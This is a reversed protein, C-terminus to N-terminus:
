SKQLRELERGMRSEVAETMVLQFMALLADSALPRLRELADRVAPLDHDPQGQDEFPKWIQKVFLDVFSKAVATAHKHIEEAVKLATEAPIGLEALEASARGLTPSLEEYRGNPLARLIGLREAKKILQAAPEGAGGWRRALEEATVIQPQENEFPAKVARTFRLVEESSGGASDILRAIAELKFGDAQLERILEIRAEHEPGYYGTRGRVEPPPLLGRSQHARINRVTMGTRRALEDITLEETAAQAM